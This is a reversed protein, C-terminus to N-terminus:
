SPILGLRPVFSRIELRRLRLSGFSSKGQCVKEGIRYLSQAIMFELSSSGTERLVWPDGHLRDTAVLLLWLCYGCSSGSTRRRGHWRSQAMCRVKRHSGIWTLRRAASAPSRGRESPGDWGAAAQHVSGPSAHTQRTAGGFQAVVGLQLRSIQPLLLAGLCCWSWCDMAASAWGCCPFPQQLM